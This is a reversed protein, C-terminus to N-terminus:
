GGVCKGTSWVKSARIYITLEFRCAKVTRATRALWGVFFNSRNVLRGFWGFFLSVSMIMWKDDMDLFSCVGSLNLNMVSRDIRASFNL